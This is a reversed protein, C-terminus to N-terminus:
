AAQGIGKQQDVKLTVRGAQEDVVVWAFDIKGEAAVAHKVSGWLREGSERLSRHPACRCAANLADSCDTLLARLRLVEAPSLAYWWYMEWDEDEYHSYCDHSYKELQGHGCAGCVAIIQYAYTFNHGATGHPVGEESLNLLPQLQRSGCILCSARTVNLM